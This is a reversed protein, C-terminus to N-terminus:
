IFTERRRTVEGGCVLAKFVEVNASSSSNFRQGKASALIEHNPTRVMLAIVVAKQGKIAV